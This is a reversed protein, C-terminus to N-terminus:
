SKGPLRRRGRYVGARRPLEQAKKIGSQSQMAVQTLQTLVITMAMIHWALDFWALSLFAGGAMFAILSIQLMRALFNYDAHEPMDETNAIAKGLQRWMLFLMTLFMVLGPWGTDNLISFYISHAAFPENVPVGYRAYNEMTWSNLGGGTLRANAVNFSYQWADLRQNASSDQKYDGIGGMRDHWSQPMLLVIFMSFVVFIVATVAKNKTKWWFFAGVAGIALIAGRSQSGVVSVLSLAICIPMIKKVLPHPPFKMLYVMFPIIMLVAV